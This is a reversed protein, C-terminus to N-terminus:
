ARAHSSRSGSTMSCTVCAGGMHSPPLVHLLFRSAGVPRDGNQFLAESFLDLKIEGLDDDTGVVDHDKIKIKIHDITTIDCRQGIIFVEDWVPNLTEPVVETKVKEAVVEKGKGDMPVITCYPDSLGNRDASIVNRAQIVGLVVCAGPILAERQQASQGRLEAIFSAPFAGAQPTAVVPATDAGVPTAHLPNTTVDAMAPLLVRIFAWCVHPDEQRVWGQLLFSCRKVVLDLITTDRSPKVM